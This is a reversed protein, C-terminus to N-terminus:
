HLVVDPGLHKAVPVAHHLKEDAHLGQLTEGFEHCTNYVM